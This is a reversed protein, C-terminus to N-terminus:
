PLRKVGFRDLNCCGGDYRCRRLADDCNFRHSKLGLHKRAFYNPVFDAIQLGANNANKNIFDIRSLHKEFTKKSIFMSGMLKILFFRDLLIQDSFVDRSEYIITGYGNNKCLFHCFNEMILQLSMIFFDPANNSIHFYRNISQRQCSAGVIKLAGTNFISTLGRYLIRHAENHAFIDYNVNTSRTARGQKFQNIEMQHLIISHPDPHEAWLTEKIASLQNELFAYESDKMIVGAMCFVAEGTKSNKSESEDLYLTYSEM